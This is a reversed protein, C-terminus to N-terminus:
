VFGVIVRPNVGSPYVTGAGSTAGTLCKVVSTSLIILNCTLPRQASLHPYSNHENNLVWIHSHFTSCCYICQEKVKFQIDLHLISYDRM